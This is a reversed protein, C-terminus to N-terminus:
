FEFDSNGVKPNIISNWDIEQGHYGGSKKNTYDFGIQSMKEDAIGEGEALDYVDKLDRSLRDKVISVHDVTVRDIKESVAYAIVSESIGKIQAGTLSPSGNEIIVKELLQELIEKVSSAKDKSLDFLIGNFYHRACLISNEVDLVGFKVIRDIRGPRKLIRPEIARPFNTTLITYCGKETKPQNVGDLFNLIGSSNWPITTEADELIILTPMKAKSINYTHMMIAKIDTAIIVCMKKSYEMAIENALSTKGSGPEGVLLLRRSGPSDFRTYLEIKDFFQAVDDKVININQHFVAKNLKQEKKKIQDYILVNNNNLFVKFLGIKPRSNIREQKNLFKYYNNLTQRTAVACTEVTENRGFGVMRQSFLMISGDSFSVKFIGSESKFNIIGQKKNFSHDLVVNPLSDNKIPEILVPSFQRNNRSKKKCEQRIAYIDVKAHLLGVAFSDKDNSLEHFKSRLTSLIIERQNKSKSLSEKKQM